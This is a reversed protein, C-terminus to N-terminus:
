PTALLHSARAGSNPSPDPSRLSWWVRGLLPGSPRLGLLWDGLIARQGGWCSPQARPLRAWGLWSQAGLRGRMGKWTPGALPKNLCFLLLRLQSSEFGWLSPDWGSHYVPREGRHLALPPSPQPWDTLDPLKHASLMHFTQDTATIPTPFSKEGGKGEPSDKRM